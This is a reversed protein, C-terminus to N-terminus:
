ASEQHLARSCLRRRTEADADVDDGAYHQQEDAGDPQDDDPVRPGVEVAVGSEGPVEAPQQECKAGDGRQDDRVIQEDDRNGPGRRTDEQVLEQGEIGVAVGREDGCVLFEEDATEGVEAEHGTEPEDIGGNAAEVEVPDRGPSSRM